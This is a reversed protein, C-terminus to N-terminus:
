SERRLRVSGSVTELEIRRGGRGLTGRVHQHMFGRNVELPFDSHVRGSVASARVEADAGAPLAVEVNGSVTRFRLTEGSGVSGLKVEVNGSVTAAEAWASTSIRVDGSVSHGEVPGRLSHAEVDGSVTRAVLRVGAPVRVTFDVRTDNQEDSDVVIRSRCEQEEGGRREGGRSPYVACILVGNGKRVMEIRVDEPDGHRGARKVAVVEVESGSAPEARVDGSVGRVEVTEGAAIRGRWRFPEQAEGGGAALLLPAALLLLTRARTKTRKSM